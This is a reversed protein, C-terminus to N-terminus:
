NFVNRRGEQRGDKEMKTEQGVFGEKEEEEKIHRDLPPLVVTHYLPQAGFTFITAKVAAHTRGAV